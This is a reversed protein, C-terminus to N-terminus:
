HTRSLYTSYIFLISGFFLSAWVLILILLIRRSAAPRGTASM